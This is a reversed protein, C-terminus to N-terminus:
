VRNAAAAPIGDPTLAGIDPRALPGSSMVDRQAIRWTYPLSARVFLYVLFRNGM